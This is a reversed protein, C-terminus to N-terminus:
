YCTQGAARNCTDDDTGHDSEEENCPQQPEQITARGDRRAFDSWSWSWSWSGVPSVGRGKAGKGCTVTVGNSFGASLARVTDSLFCSNGPLTLISSCLQASSLRQVLQLSPCSHLLRHRMLTLELVLPLFLLLLPTFYSIGLTETFTKLNSM